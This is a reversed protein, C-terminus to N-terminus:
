YSISPNASTTPACGLKQGLTRKSCSAPSVAPFRSLFQTGAPGLTGHPHRRLIKTALQPRACWYTPPRMGVPPTCASPGFCHKRASTPRFVCNPPRFFADRAQGVPLSPPGLTQLLKSFKSFEGRYVRWLWVGLQAGFAFRESNKPATDHKQGGM